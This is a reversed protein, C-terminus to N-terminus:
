LCNHNGFLIDRQPKSCNRNTYNPTLVNGVLEFVNLNLNNLEEFKPM